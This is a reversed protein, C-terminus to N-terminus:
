KKVQKIYHKIKPTYRVGHIWYEKTKNAHIVAPKGGTRHLKGHQYWMKEVNDITVPIPNAKQIAPDVPCLAYPVHIVAPLDGDRHLQGHIYWEQNDLHDIRAPLDGERHLQGHQYWEQKGDYSVLAPGQDEDRHRKGHQYWEQTGNGYIIAPGENRHIQGEQCWYQRANGGDIMVAPQDGERSPIGHQCWIKTNQVHDFASGMEFQDIIVQPVISNGFMGPTCTKTLIIAPRDHDRHIQGKQFWVQCEDDDNVYAPRDHGRHRQGHQFWELQHGNAVIRAPLDAGRHFRCQEDGWMYSKRDVGFYQSQLILPQIQELRLRESRLLPQGIAHIRKNIRVMTNIEEYKEDHIMSDCLAKIEYDGLLDLLTLSGGVVSSSHHQM